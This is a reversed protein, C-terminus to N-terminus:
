RCALGAMTLLLSGFALAVVACGGPSTPSGPGARFSSRRACIEGWLEDVGVPRSPDVKCTFAQPRKMFSLAYPGEIRWAAVCGEDGISRKCYNVGDDHSAFKTLGRFTISNGTYQPESSDGFLENADAKALMSVALEEGNDFEYALYTNAADRYKEVLDCVEEPTAFFGFVGPAEFREEVLTVLDEWTSFEPLDATRPSAPRPRGPAEAAAPAAAGSTTAHQRKALAGRLYTSVLINVEGKEVRANYVLPLSVIKRRHADTLIPEADAVARFDASAEMAAQAGDLVAKEANQLVVCFVYEGDLSDGEYLHTQGRLGALDVAAVVVSWAHEGYCGSPHKGELADIDFRISLTPMDGRM